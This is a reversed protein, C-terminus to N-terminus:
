QLLSLVGSSNQNAQALMAQASQTLVNNKTYETMEKAMDADRIISEASQINEGMTTVNAGTYELRQLYSGVRTAENIADEIADDIVRIAVNANKQTTVSIDDLTKNQASKLTELWDEQKKGDYSLAEYRALDENNLINGYDDLLKETGLSKTHMDNIYFNTHQNAKPGHHIKLPNWVFDEEKPLDGNNEVPYGEYLWIAYNRMFSYTGDGNNRFTVVDGASMAVTDTTVGFANQAGEFLARAIDSVNTIGAIGIRVTLASNEYTQTGTGAEMSSDFFFSHRSPCGPHRSGINETSDSNGACVLFFGQGNLDSPLNLARGNRNTVNSFDLPYWTNSRGELVQRGNIWSVPPTKGNVPDATAQSLGSNAFMDKVKNVVVGDEDIDAGSFIKRRSYTGDLLTKGNYNTTTAVDNINAMRQSFEKQMIARDIDSNTDNASNIALEKLNRLEEVISNIGGDAIKFLASGNQVNQNDQLLTRIQERMKESICFSAADDKASNLKQGSSVKGLLEGVKNVNKNLEGLALQAAANHQVVMAM